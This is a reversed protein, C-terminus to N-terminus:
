RSTDPVPLPDNVAYIATTQIVDDHQILHVLTLKDALHAPLPSGLLPDLGPVHRHVVNVNAILYRAGRRRVYEVILAPATEDAPYPLFRCGAWFSAYPKYAAVVTDPEVREALWDGAERLGRYAEDNHLVTPYDDRAALAFGGVCATALLLSVVGGGRGPWRAGLRKRLQVAALGAGLLVFPLYPLWYRPVMAFDFLPVPLIPLLFFLWRGRGVWAGWLALLVLPWGILAPLHPVFTALNDAVLGAFGGASRDGLSRSLFVGKASLSWAGSAVRLFVLYPLVPILAGLTFRWPVSRERFVSWAWLGAAALAAEPRILYAAGLLLGGAFGPRRESLLWGALLVCAYSMESLDGKASVLNLPLVALLTAGLLPLPTPLRRRLALFALLPLLTGFFVNAGQAARLVAISSDPDVFAMPIVALLPWGPPFSSLPLRGERLLARSQELYHVGDVSPYPNKAALWARDVAGTALVLGLLLWTLKTKWDGIGSMQERRNRM